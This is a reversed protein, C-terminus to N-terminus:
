AGCRRELNTKVAEAELKEGDQFAVGDRVTLTLALNDRSWRWATARQPVIDNAPDTDVFKDSGIM